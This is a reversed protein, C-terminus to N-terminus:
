AGAAKVGAQEAEAHWKHKGTGSPQNRRASFMPIYVIYINAVNLITSDILIYNSVFHIYYEITVNM